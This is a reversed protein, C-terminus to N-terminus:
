KKEKKKKSLQMIKSTTSYGEHLTSLHVTGGLKEVVDWEPMNQKNYQGGTKCHIAPKVAEIFKIPTDEDFLVIYDIPILSSLVEARDNENNIPRDPGKYRKISSDTNLGVILVDGLSKAECFSRIHGIHIIDFAGNTTVIKKCKSRLTNAIEKIEDIKKIKKLYDM